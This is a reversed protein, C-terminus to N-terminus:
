NPQTENELTALLLKAEEDYPYNKISKNLLKKAEDVRGERIYIKALANYKNYEIDPNIDISKQLNQKAENYKGQKYYVLGLGEYPCTYTRNNYQLSSKFYMEAESYNGFYYYLLGLEAKVYENNPYIKNAFQFIEKAEDYRKLGTLSNGKSVLALFKKPNKDLIKQYYKLAEEHKNQNANVWGMGILTLTYYSNSDIPENEKNFTNQSLAKQFLMEAEQFEKEALAIHGKEALTMSNEPLKDLIESAEEFRSQM